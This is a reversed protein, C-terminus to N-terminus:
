STNNKVGLINYFTYMEVKFVTPPLNCLIENQSFMVIFRFSSKLLITKLHIFLLV